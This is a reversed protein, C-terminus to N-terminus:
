KKIRFRGTDDTNYYIRDYMEFPRGFDAKLDWVDYYSIYNGESDSGKTITFNGMSHGSMTSAGSDDWAGRQERINATGLIDERIKSDRLAFYSVNKDKSNTPIYKSLALNGWRQPKGMYLSFSDDRLKVTTTNRRKRKSKEALGEDYYERDEDKKNLVIADIARQVPKNYGFPFLNSYLRDRIFSKGQLQEDLIGTENLQQEKTGDYDTNYRKNKYMFEQEGENRARRYATDFSAEVRNGEVKQSTYDNVGYNKPNFWAQYADGAFDLVGYGSKPALVPNKPTIVEENLLEEDEPRESVPGNGTMVVGKIGEQAM